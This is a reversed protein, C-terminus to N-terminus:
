WRRRTRLSCQRDGKPSLSLKERQAEERLLQVLLQGLRHQRVQLQQPQGQLPFSQFNQVQQKDKVTLLERVNPFAHSKIESGTLFGTYCCVCAKATTTYCAYNWIQMYLSNGDLKLTARCWPCVSPMQLVSSSNPECRWQM